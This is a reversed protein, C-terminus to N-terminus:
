VNTNEKEKYVFEFHPRKIVSGNPFVITKFCTRKGKCYQTVVNAQVKLFFALDKCSEWVDGTEICKVKKKNKNSLEKMRKINPEKYETSNIGALYKERIKPKAMAEKTRQKLFQLTIPNQSNEKYSVWRLNSIANNMKNGDIHDICPKNEPNPIFYEAILRHILFSKYKGKTFLQIGKYGAFITGKLIKNKLVNKVKGDSSIQYRGEYGKIDKWEIEESM